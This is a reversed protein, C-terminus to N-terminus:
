LHPYHETLNFDVSTTSSDRHASLISKAVDWDLM